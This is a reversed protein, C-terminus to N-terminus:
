SCRRGPSYSPASSLFGLSPVPQPFFSVYLAFRFINKTGQSPDRCTDVIYSICKFTFFSIGLPAVLSVTDAGLFFNLYKYAGLFLLNLAVTVGCLAKRRQLKQLLLGLLFNVTIAALLLLLGSFSGFAYFVLGAALLVGNRLKDKRFLWYLLLTLPLFAGLAFVSDLSM